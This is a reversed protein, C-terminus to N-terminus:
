LLYFRSHESCRQAASLRRRTHPKGRRVVLVQCIDRLLAASHTWALSVSSGQAPKSRATVWRLKLDPLSKDVSERRGWTHEHVLGSEIYRCQHPTANGMLELRPTSPCRPEFSPISHVCDVPSLSGNKMGFTGRGRPDAIPMVYALVRRRLIILRSHGDPTSAFAPARSVSRALLARKSRYICRLRYCM